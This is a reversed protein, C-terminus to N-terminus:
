TKLKALEASTMRYPAKCGPTTDLVLEIMFEIETQPLGQAEQFVALFEQVV